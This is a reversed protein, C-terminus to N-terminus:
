SAALLSLGLLPAVMSFWGQAYALLEDAQSEPLCQELNCDDDAAGAAVGRVATALVEAGSVQAATAPMAAEAAAALAPVSAPQAASQQQQPLRSHMMLQM